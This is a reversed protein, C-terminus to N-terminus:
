NGGRAVAKRLDRILERAVSIPMAARAIIRREPVAEYGVTELDIWGVIRIFDARVEITIGECFICPVAEPETVRPPDIAEAM